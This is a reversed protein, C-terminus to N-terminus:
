RIVKNYAVGRMMSNFGGSGTFYLVAFPYHEPETDIIDMHRAINFGKNELKVIGM